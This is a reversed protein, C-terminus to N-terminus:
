GASLGLGGGPPNFLVVVNVTGSTQGVIVAGWVAAETELTISDGPDLEIGAGQTLDGENPAIVLGHSASAPVWVTVSVQGKRKGSLQIPNNSGLTYSNATWESAARQNVPFAQENDTSWPPTTPTGQSELPADLSIPTDADLQAGPVIPVSNDRPHVGQPLTATDTM